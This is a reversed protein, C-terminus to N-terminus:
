MSLAPYWGRIPYLFDPPSPTSTSLKERIASAQVDSPLISQIADIIDAFDFMKAALLQGLKFVTQLNQPNALAYGESGGEPYIDQCCTLTDPKGTLKRPCYHIVYDFGSLFESWHAQCWSLQKSSTFYELTCHNSIVMTTQAVGELYLCWSRFSDVVALLEKDYIDYNWEAPQM